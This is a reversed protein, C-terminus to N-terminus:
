VGPRITAFTISCELGLEDRAPRLYNMQYVAVLNNREYIRHLFGVLEELSVGNLRLELLEQPSAENNTRVRNLEAREKLKSEALTQDIFTFFNFTAPRARLQERIPEEREIRLQEEAQLLQTMQLEERASELTAQSDLYAKRPGSPVWWAALLVIFLALGCAALWSRDKNELQM